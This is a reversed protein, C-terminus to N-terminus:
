QHTVFVRVTLFAAFCVLGIASIAASRLRRKRALGRKESLWVAGYLVAFFIAMGDVVKLFTSDRQVWSVAALVEQEMHDISVRSM